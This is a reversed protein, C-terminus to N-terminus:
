REKELVPIGNADSFHQRLKKFKHINLPSLHGETCLGVMFQSPVTEKEFIAKRTHGGLRIGGPVWSRTSNHKKQSSCQGTYCQLVAWMKWIKLVGRGKEVSVTFTVIHTIYLLRMTTVCFLSVVVICTICILTLRDITGFVVTGLIECIRLIWEKMTMTMTITM